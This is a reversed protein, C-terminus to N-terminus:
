CTYYAKFDSVPVSWTEFNIQVITFLIRKGTMFRKVSSERGLQFQSRCCSM